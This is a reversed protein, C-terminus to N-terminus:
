DIQKCCSLFFFLMSLDNELYNLFCTSLQHVKRRPNGAFNFVARRSHEATSRSLGRPLPVPHLSILMGIVILTLRIRPIFRLHIMSPNVPFPDCSM